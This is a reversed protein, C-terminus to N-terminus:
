RPLFRFPPEELVPEAFQGVSKKGIEQSPNDISQKALRGSWSLGIDSGDFAATTASATPEDLRRLECPSLVKRNMTMTLASLLLSAPTSGLWSSSLSIIFYLSSSTFAPTISAASPRCALEFPARTLNESPVVVTVSPGNASVFSSM